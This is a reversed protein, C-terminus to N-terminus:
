PGSRVRGGRTEVLPWSRLVLRSSHRRPLWHSFGLDLAIVLQGGEGGPHRPGHGLQLNGAGVQRYEWWLLGGLEILEGVAELREVKQDGVLDLAGPVGRFRVRAPGPAGLQHAADM